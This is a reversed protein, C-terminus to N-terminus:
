DSNCWTLIGRRPYPGFNAFLGIGPNDDEDRSILVYVWAEHSKSLHARDVKLARNANFTKLLGDIFDADEADIGRVAGSGEHKAGTFYGILQDELSAGLLLREESPDRLPVYVGEMEPQRCATGGTQNSILVGSKCSIILGAGSNEYLRIIPKGM